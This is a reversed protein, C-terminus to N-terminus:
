AARGRTEFFDPKDPNLLLFLRAVDPARHDNLKFDGDNAARVATEHRMVEWLTRSSYRRRGANWVRLAETEFREWVHLNSKLWEGFDPKFKERSEAVRRLVFERRALQRYTPASIFDIPLQESM